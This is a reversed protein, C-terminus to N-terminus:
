VLLYILDQLIALTVDKPVQFLVIRLGENKLNEKFFSSCKKNDVPTYDELEKAIVPHLTSDTM